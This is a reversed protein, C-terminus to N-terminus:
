DSLRRRFQRLALWLGVAVWLCLYAVHGLNVLVTGHNFTTANRCLEVAHYLPSIYVLPLLLKPLSSADFYVGAFLSMPIIVFRNLFPFYNTNEVKATLAYMPAAVAIAVLACVPITLVGWWSQVGGFFSTVILFVISTTVARFLMFLMDGWLIDRVRLPTAIQAFYTRMWIFKSAVPFTAEGFGVQMATSAIMGPVVFAIYPIDLKGASNVMKGVTIGFGIVFLVPLVFSSLASGRWTRGYGIMNFEFVSMTPAPIIAV